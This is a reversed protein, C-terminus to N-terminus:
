SRQWNLQPYFAWQKLKVWQFLEDNHTNHMRILQSTEISSTYKLPIDKNTVPFLWHIHMKPLTIHTCTHTHLAFMWVNSLILAAHFQIKMERKFLYRCNIYLMKYIMTKTHLSRIPCCPLDRVCWKAPSPTLLNNKKKAGM